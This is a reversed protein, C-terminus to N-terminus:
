GKTNTQTYDVVAMSPGFDVPTTNNSDSYEIELQISNIYHKDIDIRQFGTRASKRSIAKTAWVSTSGNFYIKVNAETADSGSDNRNIMYIDIYNVTSMAPFYKVLTYIDGQHQLATVGDAGTGYLDWEKVTPGDGSDHYAIYLGNKTQKEGSPPSDTNGGGWLIVGTGAYTSPLIGIKFVGEKDTFTPKGHAYIIGNRGVWTTFTSITTLADHYEPYSNVGVEAIVDFTSGNFRRVQTIRESSVTIVRLDGQPSIYVKVISKVGPIPIFDRTRVVSTLRDWIYVGVQSNFVSLSSSATLPNSTDQRIAMFMNGRYDQADTIQFFGPFQLVNASITGTAGGNATGDLKHVNNDQFIYMFGNDAKRMFARNTLTNTFSNTVDATLWDSNASAFPLDAEGIEMNGAKEYLYFFKIGGNLQYIEIDQIVPTGTSGLDLVETLSTDDLTDGKYIRRGEEAFYFDNNAIDYISSSNASDPTTSMTVAGFTNNAPSLYGLRRFPNYIGDAMQNEGGVIQNEPTATTRDYEGFFRPALGGRGSLDIPLKAM